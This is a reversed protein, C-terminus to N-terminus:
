RLRLHAAGAAIADYIDSTKNKGAKDSYPGIRNCEETYLFTIEAATEEKSANGKLGLAKRIASPEYECINFQPFRGLIAGRLKALTLGTKLNKGCFGDEMVLDINFTCNFGATEIGNLIIKIRDNTDGDKKSSTIKRTDYIKGNYDMICLGCSSISPDLAIFTKEQIVTM